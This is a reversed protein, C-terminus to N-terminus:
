FQADILFNKVIGNNGAKILPYIGQFLSGNVFPGGKASRIVAEKDAATPERFVVDLAVFASRIAGGRLCGRVAPSGLLCPGAGHVSGHVSGNGRTSVDCVEEILDDRVPHVCGWLSTFSRM